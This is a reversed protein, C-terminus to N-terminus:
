STPTGKTDTLLRGRARMVSKRFENKGPSQDNISKRQALTLGCGYFPDKTAEYLTTDGTDLLFQGLIPNQSFKLYNLEDLVNLKGNNWIQDYKIKKGLDHLKFPKATQMITNALGTMQHHTAAKHFYRQELSKYENSGDVIQCKHM